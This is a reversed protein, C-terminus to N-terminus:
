ASDCAIGVPMAAARWGTSIGLSMLSAISENTMYAYAPLLIAGFFVLVAVLTLQDFFYRTPLALRNVLATMRMHEGRRLALVTGLMALWLFLLSALEDSWILPHDFAYRAIIGVFLIIIETVVLLSVTLELALGFLRDLRAALGTPLVAGMAVQDSASM